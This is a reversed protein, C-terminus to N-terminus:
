WLQVNIYIPLLRFQLRAGYFTLLEYQVTALNRNM